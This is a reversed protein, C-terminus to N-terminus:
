LFTQDVVYVLVSDNGSNQDLHGLIEASCAKENEWEWKRAPKMM